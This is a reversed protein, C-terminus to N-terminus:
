RLGKCQMFVPFARLVIKATGILIEDNKEQFMKYNIFFIISSKITWSIRLFMIKTINVANQCVHRRSFTNSNSGVDSAEDPVNEPVLGCFYRLFNCEM